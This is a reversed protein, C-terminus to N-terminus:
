VKKGTTIEISKRVLETDIYSPCITNVRINYDKKLFKLSRALGIVGSKTASYVPSGTM